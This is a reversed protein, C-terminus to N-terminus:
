TGTATAGAGAGAGWVGTATASGGPSGGAAPGPAGIEGVGRGESPRRGTSALAGTACVCVAGGMEAICRGAVLGGKFVRTAIGASTALGSGAAVM